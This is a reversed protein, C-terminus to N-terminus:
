LYRVGTSCRRQMRRAYKRTDFFIPMMKRLIVCGCSGTYFDQLSTAIYRALSPWAYRCIEIPTIGAQFERLSGDPLSVTIMTTSAPMNM